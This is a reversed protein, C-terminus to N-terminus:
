LKGREQLVLNDSMSVAVAGEMRQAIAVAKWMTGAEIPIFSPYGYTHMTVRARCRDAFCLSLFLTEHEQWHWLWWRSTGDEGFSGEQAEGKGEGTGTAKTASFMFHTSIAKETRLRVELLM